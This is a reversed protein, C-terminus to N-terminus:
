RVADAGHGRPQPHCRRLLVFQQFHEPSIQSVMPDVVAIVDAGNDIYADATKTGVAACYDVLARVREENDFMELFINNGLLHLALTFPGCILGYLAVRDGIETKVTRLAAMIEPFRGRDPGFEPLDALRAGEALPHSAVSPPGNSAWRLECGLM